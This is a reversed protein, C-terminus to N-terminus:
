GELTDLFQQNMPFCHLGKDSAANQLMQDPEISNIEAQREWYKPYINRNIKHDKLNHKSAFVPDTFSLSVLIARVTFTFKLTM